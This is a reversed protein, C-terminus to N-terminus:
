ITHVLVYCKNISQLSVEWKPMLKGTHRPDSAETARLVLEGEDYKRIRTKKAFYEKTKKKIPTWGKCSMMGSKM